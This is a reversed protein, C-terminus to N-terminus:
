TGYTVHPIVIISPHISQHPPIQFSCHDPNINPSHSTKTSFWSDSPPTSISFLLNVRAKGLATMVLMDCSRDHGSSNRAGSNCRQDYRRRRSGIYRYDLDCYTVLRWSLKKNLPQCSNSPKSDKQTSFFHSLIKGTDLCLTLLSINDGFLVMMSPM